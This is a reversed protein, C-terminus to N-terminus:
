KFKEQLNISTRFILKPGQYRLPIAAVCCGLIHKIQTLPVAPGTYNLGRSVMISYELLTEMFPVKIGLM